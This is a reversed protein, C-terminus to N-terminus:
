SPDIATTQWMDVFRPISWGVLDSVQGDGIEVIRLQGDARQIIDISFFPSDIRRACAFVIDPIEDIANVGYPKGQLVFYRQETELLFDEVRRICLGGEITGRYKQMESVVTQIAEPSEILSGISTKLSKVYDKVFFKSWGLKKLESVWDADLSLVVTEPTLDSILPYWNPLYHTALYQEISSLTLGGVQEISLIFNQYETPSLMWGRYVVTADSTIAKLTAPEISLKDSDILTITHGSKALATAEDQFSEDPQRRNLLSQPYVFRM